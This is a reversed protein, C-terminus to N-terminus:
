KLPTIIMETNVLLIKLKKGTKTLTKDVGPLKFDKGEDKRTGGGKGLM